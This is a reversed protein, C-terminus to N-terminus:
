PSFEFAGIDPAAGQPRPRGDFDGAISHLPTATDIAESGARLRFDGQSLDVFPSDDAVQAHQGVGVQHLQALTQYSRQGDHADSVLPGAGGSAGRYLNHDVYRQQALLGGFYMEGKANHWLLNNAIINNVDEVQAMGIGVGVWRAQSNYGNEVITNHIITNNGSHTSTIGNGMNRYVINNAVLAGHPTYDVIIGNGDRQTIDVQDSIFNGEVRNGPGSSHISIGSSGPNEMTESYYGGYRLQNGVILNRASGEHTSIHGIGSYEILNAEVRNDHADKHLWVGTSLNQYIHNHAIVGGQLSYAARQGRITYVGWGLHHLRNREIRVDQSEDMVSIGATHDSIDNDSLLIHASARVGIGQTWSDVRSKLLTIYTAYKRSVRGARVLWTENPNIVGVAPDDVVVAPMEQWAPPLPSAGRIRFGSLTLWQSNRISFSHVLAQGPSASVFHIPAQESGQREIYIDGQSRYDGAAVTVVDGAQVMQVAKALTAWPATLTGANNDNGRGGDVYYNQNIARADTEPM